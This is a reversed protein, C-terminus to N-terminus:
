VGRRLDELMDGLSYAGDQNEALAQCEVLRSMRPRVAQTVLSPLIVSWYPAWVHFLRPVGFHRAAPPEGRPAVM